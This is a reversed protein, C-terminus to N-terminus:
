TLRHRDVADTEGAWTPRNAPSWLAARQIGSGPQATFGSVTFPVGRRSRQKKGRINSPIIKPSAPGRGPKILCIWGVPFLFHMLLPADSHPWDYQRMGPAGAAEKGSGAAPYFGGAKQPRIKFHACKMVPRTVHILFEHTARRTARERLQNGGGHSHIRLIEQRLTQQSLETSFIYVNTLAPTQPHCKHFPLFVM